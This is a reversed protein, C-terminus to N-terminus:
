KLLFTKKFHASLFHLKIINLFAFITSIYNQFTLRHYNQTHGWGDGGFFTVKSFYKVINLPKQDWSLQIRSSLSIFFSFNCIIYLYFILVKTIAM